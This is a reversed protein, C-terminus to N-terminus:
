GRIRHRCHTTIKAPVGVSGQDIHMHLIRRPESWKVAAGTEGSSTDVICLRRSRGPSLGQMEGPM